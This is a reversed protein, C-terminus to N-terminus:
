CRSCLSRRSGRMRSWRARVVDTVIRLTIDSVHTGLVAKVLGAKRAGDISPDSLARRLGVQADLVDVVGFLEDGVASAEHHEDGSRSLQREVFTWAQALADRSAGQM